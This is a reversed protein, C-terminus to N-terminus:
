KIIEDLELQRLRPKSPEGTEPDWNMAEYYARRLAELDDFDIQVGETPGSSIPEHLRLPLKFDQPRIGERFNFAQRLTQIREGAVLLEANSFDWGTAASILDALPFNVAMGLHLCLGCSALIELHKVALSYVQGKGKITSTDVAPDQLEMYPELNEREESTGGRTHRGPTPDMSWAGESPMLRPDHYAVEQGGIHIAYKDAGKGIKEAAVKSGDALIAGFGERKCIKETIAIIAETNGWTLQIGGTDQDTIIGKEYCEMAFAITGGVSMTDIGYRDCIDNAMIVAEVDDNCCLSGLGVLTEYEPKRASAIKYPGQEISVVGGCFVPCAACGAKKRKYRSLNEGSLNKHTPFAEEGAQSWNKIPGEGTSVAMSMGGSTGHEKLMEIFPHGSTNITSLIKRRMKKIADPDAVPVKKTGRVAIAKLNKAGMVAGVGSRAAAREESIIAALLSRAEGAPGICAVRIKPDGNESRLMETTEATDKGWLHHADKIEVKEETVLLYVPHSAIGKFFIADYGSAKLEPGFYGGANSDGWTGTLPSKTVVMFRSAGPVGCGTLLGTAFGLINEPGLAEVKGAQRENLVKAGLGEGGIYNRYVGESWPEENISGSTLDVFLIKGMYGPM